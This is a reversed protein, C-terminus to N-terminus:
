GESHAKFDKLQKEIEETEPDVILEGKILKKYNLQIIRISMILFALPLILYFYKMPVGLTQSKWFKNAKNFVFDYSLYVFYINFCIWILDATAELITAVRQPVLKLQFTVRNHAGMKAAYSAGFYVFWVFMYTSLEESWVFSFGIIERGVIQFFLLLVFAVLLTQCAVLEFNAFIKKALKM